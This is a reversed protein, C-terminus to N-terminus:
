WPTDDDPRSYRGAPGSFDVDRPAADIQRAPSIKGGLMTGYQGKAWVAVDMKVVDGPKAGDPIVVLASGKWNPAKDNKKDKEKYITLDGPRAEYGAM